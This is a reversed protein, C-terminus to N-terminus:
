TLLRAPPLIHEISLTRFMYFVGIIANDTV